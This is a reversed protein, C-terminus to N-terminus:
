WDKEWSEKKYSKISLISGLYPKVFKEFDKLFIVGNREKDILAFIGDADVEKKGSSRKKPDSRSKKDFLAIL